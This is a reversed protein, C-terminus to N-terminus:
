GIWARLETMLFTATEWPTRDFVAVPLIGALAGWFLSYLVCASFLRGSPRTEAVAKVMIPLIPVLFRASYGAGAHWGPYAAHLVFFVLAPLYWDGGLRFRPLGWVLFPAFWLLGERPDLLLGIAAQFFRLGPFDFSGTESLHRLGLHFLSFHDADRYVWQIILIALALAAATAGALVISRRRDRRRLSLAALTFPVVCFPFKTLTGLFSAAALVWPNRSTLLLIRAVAMWSENGLDRSYCWLPTALALLLLWRPEGGIASRFRIFGVWVAFM